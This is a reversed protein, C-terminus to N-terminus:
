LGVGLNEKRMKKLWKEIDSALWKRAKNILVPAPAEGKHVWSCWTKRSIGCMKAMEGSTYFIREESM